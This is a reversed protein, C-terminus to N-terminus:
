KSVHYRGPNLFDFYECCMETSSNALREELVPFSSSSNIFTPLMDAILFDHHIGVLEIASIINWLFPENNPVILLIVSLYLMISPASPHVIHNIYSKVFNFSVHLNFMDINCQLEFIFRLQNFVNSCSSKGDRKICTKLIISVICYGAAMLAFRSCFYVQHCIQTQRVM